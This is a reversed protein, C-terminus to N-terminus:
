KKVKEVKQTSSAKEFASEFWENFAELDDVTTPREFEKGTASHRVCMREEDINLRHLTNKYKTFSMLRYLEAYNENNLVELFQNLQNYYVDLVELEKELYQDDAEYYWSDLFGFKRAHKGLRESIFRKVKNHKMTSHIGARSVDAEEIYFFTLHSVRGFTPEERTEHLDYELQIKEILKAKEM